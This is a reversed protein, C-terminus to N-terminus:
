AARKASSSAYARAAPSAPPAPPAAAGRAGAAPSRAANSAAASPRVADASAIARAAIARPTPHEFILTTPLAAGSLEHLRAALRVAQQSKVGAEM